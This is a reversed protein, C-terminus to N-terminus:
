NRTYNIRCIIIIKLQKVEMSNERPNQRIEIKYKYKSNKFISTLTKELMQLSTIIADKPNSLNKIWNTLTNITKASYKKEILLKELLECNEKKLESLDLYVSQTEDYKKKELADRVSWSLHNNLFEASPRLQDIISLSLTINM